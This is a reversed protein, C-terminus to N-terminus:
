FASCSSTSWVPYIRMYYAGRFNTGRSPSHRACFLHKEGAFKALVSMDRALRRRCVFVSEWESMRKSASDTCRVCSLLKSIAGTAFILKAGARVERRMAAGPVSFFPSALTTQYHSVAMFCQGFNIAGPDARIFLLSGLASSEKWVWRQIGPDLKNNCEHTLSFLNHNSCKSQM